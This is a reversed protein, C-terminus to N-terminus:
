NIGLSVWQGGEDIRGLQQWGGFECDDNGLHTNFGKDIAGEEIGHRAAEDLQARHVVERLGLRRHGGYHGGNVAFCQLPVRVMQGGMNAMGGVVERNSSAEFVASKVFHEAAATVRRALTSNRIGISGSIAESAADQDFCMAAIKWGIAEAEHPGYGPPAPLLPAAPPNAPTTGTHPPQLLHPLLAPLSKMLFAALGRQPRMAANVAAITTTPLENLVTTYQPLVLQRCQREKDTATPMRDIDAGSRLLTRIVAEYLPIESTATDRTLQPMTDDQSAQVAWDLGSGAFVLPTKNPDLPMGKNIEAPPAHRCLFDAVCPSPVRAALHLPTWGHRGQATLSAGNAVLLDLYADVFAQSYQGMERCAADHVLNCGLGDGGQETALTADNQILRRYISLLRREYDLPVRRGIRAAIADPLSMVFSDFDDVEQRVAAGRALLVSVAEDNGGCIAVRMPRSAADVALGIDAGGDILANIIAAELQRSPWQPLSIPHARWENDIAWRSTMAIGSLDDIALSLLRYAMGRSCGRARLGPLSKADAGDHQILQKVEQEDAFARCIIGGGLRRTAESTGPAYMVDVDELRYGTADPRRQGQAGAAM